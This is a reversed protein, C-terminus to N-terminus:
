AKTYNITYQLREEIARIISRPEYKLNRVIERYIVNAVFASSINQNFFEIKEIHCNHERVISCEKHDVWKGRLAHVRWSCDSVLCKVNYESKSSKVVKFKRWLSLSWFKVADIVAEKSPYM